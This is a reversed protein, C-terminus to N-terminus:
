EGRAPIASHLTAVILRCDGCVLDAATGDLHDVVMSKVEFCGPCWIHKHEVGGQPLLALAEKLAARLAFVLRAEGRPNDPDWQDEAACFAECASGVSDDIWNKVIEDSWEAPM